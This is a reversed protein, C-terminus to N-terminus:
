SHLLAHQMVQFLKHTLDEISNIVCSKGPLLTAINHDLVGVGFVEVQLAKALRLAYQVCAINDPEGDTIILIIKRAERLHVLQQLTWLLAPGLPTMGNARVNFPTDSKLREGSTLIPQVSDAFDDGPFSTVAAKVHPIGQLAYVLAYCAQLALQMPLGDMSGSSDLLIHVATDLAVHRSNQKFVAQQGLSVKYLQHTDLKGKRGLACRDHTSAQLLGQLKSRMATTSKVAQAKQDPPMPRITSDSCVTAVTLRKGQDEPTADQLQQAAQEAMDAPIPTDTPNAHSQSNANGPAKSRKTQVSDTASQGKNGVDNSTKPQLDGNQKLSRESEEVFEDVCSKIEQAYGIAAQTDPCHGRCRALVKDVKDTLGPWAQDCLDRELQANAELEPVDWSRVTLLVYNLINPRDPKEEFFHRILWAFHSRCGPFVRSLANEVRWDEISNWISHTFADMKANHLADFDTHRIHAAEHDLFGRALALVEEDPDLPMAPLHITKGNTYASSGGLEVKVGYMNGLVSALLPLSNMIDKNHIM